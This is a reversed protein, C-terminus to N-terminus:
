RGRGEGIFSTFIEDGRKKKKRELESSLTERKKNGGGRDFLIHSFAQRCGGKGRRPPASLGSGREGRGELSLYGKERGEAGGACRLFSNNGCKRKKRKRKDTRGGKKRKRSSVPQGWKERKKPAIRLRAGRAKKGKRALKRARPM